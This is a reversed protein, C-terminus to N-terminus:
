EKDKIFKTDVESWFTHGEPTDDWVFAAGISILSHTSYTGWYKQANRRFKM